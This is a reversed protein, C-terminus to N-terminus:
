ARPVEVLPVTFNTGQGRRCNQPTCGAIRRFSAIFNSVSAFGSDYAIETVPKDTNMLEELSMRIRYEILFSYISFGTIRKFLRSGHSESLNACSTIDRVCIQREYNKHIFNIMRKVNSYSDMDVMNRPLVIEPPCVMLQGVAEMLDATFRVRFGEKKESYERAAESLLDFVRKEEERDRRILMASFSHNLYDMVERGIRSGDFSCLIKQDLLGTMVVAPIEDSLARFDHLEGYNVLVMRNEDVLLKKGYVEVVARSGPMATMLNLNRHWHTRVGNGSIKHLDTLWIDVPFGPDDVKVVDFLNDGIVAEENDFSIM